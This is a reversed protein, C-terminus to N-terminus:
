SLMSLNDRFGDALSNEYYLCGFTCVFTNVIFRVIPVGRTYIPEQRSPLMLM